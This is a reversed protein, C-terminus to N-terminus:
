KKNSMRVGALYLTRMALPAHPKIRHKQRCIAPATTERLPKSRQMGQERGERRIAESEESITITADERDGGM